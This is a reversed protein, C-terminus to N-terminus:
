TEQFLAANSNIKLYGSSPASWSAKGLHDDQGVTGLKSCKILSQTSKCNTLQQKALKGIHEVSRSKKHWMLNNHNLWLGWCLMFCLEKQKGICNRIVYQLWSHISDMLPVLFNFGHRSWCELAVPCKLLVHVNSKVGTNCLCCVNNVEVRRQLLKENTPLCGVVLRQIFNLVKPPTAWIGIWITSDIPSLPLSLETRLSNYESKVM